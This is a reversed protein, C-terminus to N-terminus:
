KYLSFSTDYDPGPKNSVRLLTKHFLPASSVLCEKWEPIRRAVEEFFTLMRKIQFLTLDVHRTEDRRDAFHFLLREQTAHLYPRTYSFLFKGSHVTRMLNNLEENPEQQCHEPPPFPNDLYYSSWCLPDADQCDTLEWTNEQEQDGKLETGDRFFQDRDKLNDSLSRFKFSYFLKLMFELHLQSAAM